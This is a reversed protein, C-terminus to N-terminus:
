LPYMGMRLLGVVMVVVVVVVVVLLLLFHCLLYLSIILSHLCLFGKRLEHVPRGKGDTGEMNLVKTRQALDQMEELPIISLAMAQLEQDECQLGWISLVPFLSGPPNESVLVCM